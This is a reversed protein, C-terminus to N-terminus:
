ATAAEDRQSSLAPQYPHADLTAVDKLNWLRKIMLSVYRRHRQLTGEVVLSASSSLTRRCQQYIQPPIAAPLEGEEDSLVLFTMGKATPPQQRSIVIGATKLILGNPKTRVEGISMIGAAKLSRRYFMMVSYRASANQLTMDLGALDLETLSPLDPLPDSPVPEIPLAFGTQLAPSNRTALQANRTALDTSAQENSIARMRPTTRMVEELQWLLKRRPVGLSDFAGVAILNQVATRDVATRRWFDALSRFPGQERAEVITAAADESVGKVQLFGMRISLSNRTALETNPKQQERSM